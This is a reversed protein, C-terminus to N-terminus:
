PFCGLSGGGSWRSPMLRDEIGHTQCSPGPLWQACNQGKVDELLLKRGRGSSCRVHYHSASPCPSSLPGVDGCWGAGTVVAAMTVGPITRTSFPGSLSRWAAVKDEAPVVTPSATPPTSRHPLHTVAPYGTLNWFVRAPNEEEPKLHQEVM